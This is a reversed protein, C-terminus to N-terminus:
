HSPPPLTMLETPPRVVTFVVTEGIQKMKVRAILELAKGRHGDVAIICDDELVRDKESVWRNYRAFAGSETMNGIQLCLQTDKFILAAGFGEQERRLPVDVPMARLFEIELTRKPIRMAAIIAKKGRKQDISVVFDHTQVQDELPLGENSVRVPGDKIDIVMPVIGWIDLMLGLVGAQTRSFSRTYSLPLQQGQGIANTACGVEGAGRGFAEAAIASSTSELSLGGLGLQAHTENEKKEEGEERQQLLLLGLRLQHDPNQNQHQLHQQQAGAGTAGGGGAGAARAAFIGPEQNHNQSSSSWRDPRAEPHSASSATTTTAANGGTSASLTTSSLLEDERGKKDFHCQLSFASEARLHAQPVAINEAKDSEEFCCCPM